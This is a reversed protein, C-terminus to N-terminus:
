WFVRTPRLSLLREDHDRDFDDVVLVGAPAAAGAPM